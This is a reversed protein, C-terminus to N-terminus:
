FYKTLIAINFVVAYIPFVIKNLNRNDVSMKWLDDPRKVKSHQQQQLAAQMEWDRLTEAM